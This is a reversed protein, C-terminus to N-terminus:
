GNALFTHKFFVVQVTRLGVSATPIRQVIIRTFAKQWDKVFDSTEATSVKTRSALVVVM